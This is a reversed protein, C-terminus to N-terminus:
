GLHKERFWPNWGSNDLEEEDKYVGNKFDEQFKILDEETFIEIHNVEKKCNICYLKKKHNKSHLHGKSRQIPIGKQGCRVCYFDHSTYNM